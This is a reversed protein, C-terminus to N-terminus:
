RSVLRAAAAHFRALIHRLGPALPALAGAEGMVEQLVGRLEARLVAEAGDEESDTGAYSALADAWATILGDAHVVPRYSM